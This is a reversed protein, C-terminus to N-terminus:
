CDCIWDWSVKIACVGVLAIGASAPLFFPNNASLLGAFTLAAIGTLMLLIWFIHVFIIAINKSAKKM